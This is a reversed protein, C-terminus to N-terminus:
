PKRRTSTKKTDTEKTNATKLTDDLYKISDAAEQKRPHTEPAKSVFQQLMDRAEGYKSPDQAALAFGLGYMADLNNPNATLATRYANVAEEVKGSYFLADGLSALAKDKKVQDTEANIYEQIAKVAADYDIATITQLAIRYSEARDFLYGVEESPQAAAGAGAARKSAGEHYAAVAKEASEASGKFDNRAADKGANDKAKIAANYKDVGRARLAVAKNRYFVSQTPDAQIGLDYQTVAEDYNKALLAANGAKLIEPLKANLEVAKRNEEEIRAREKELEAARRKAEETNATGTAVATKANKIQDLTLVEGGGPVLTFDNEAQQSIRIGALYDPRAGPASVAITYTGVLPLGVNVYRGNKDTKASFEQNIDTRYFKVTAGQVPVTTGDAQKLMVKGSGTAVQASAAVAALAIVLAAAFLNLLSKSRM